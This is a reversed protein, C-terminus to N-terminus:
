KGMIPRVVKIGFPVTGSLIKNWHERVDSCVLSPKTALELVYEQLRIWADTSINVNCDESYKYAYQPYAMDPEFGRTPKAIENM